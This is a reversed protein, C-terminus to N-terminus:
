GVQSWPLLVCLVYKLDKDNGTPIGLAGTLFLGQIM